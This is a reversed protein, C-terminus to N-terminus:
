FLSRQGGPGTASTSDWLTAGLKHKSAFFLLYLPVAGAITKPLGFHKYGITRLQRRYLDLVFERIHEADRNPLSDFEDRWGVDEGLFKDLNLSKRPYYYASINRILDSRDMVSIILDVRRETTLKRVTDFHIHLGTPDIFALYLARPDMDKVIEDVTSNCDGAYVHPGVQPLHAAFRKEIAKLVDCSIDAFYFDDFQKSQRPTKLAILPSGDIEERSGRIRSIGPSAFLDIYGLGSWRPKNKMSTTFADIYRALFHHKNRSWAGVLRVPLKDEGPVLDRGNFDTQEKAHETM